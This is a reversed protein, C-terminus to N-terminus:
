VSVAIQDCIGGGTVAVTGGTKVKWDAAFAPNRENYLERSLGHSVNPLSADTRAGGAALPLCVAGAYALLSARVAVKLRM